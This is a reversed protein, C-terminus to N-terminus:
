EVDVVIRETDPPADYYELYRPDAHYEALSAVDHSEFDRLVLRATSLHV